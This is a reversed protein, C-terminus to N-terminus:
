RERDTFMRVGDLFGEATATALGHDFECGLAEALPMAWQEYSALRDSRLCRQPLRTLEHALTVAAPLAQGPAVLRNVLGMRLAEPGAVNRGTLILDLAHSHGILRPLRITGGDM